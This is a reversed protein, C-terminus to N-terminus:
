EGSRVLPGRWPRAEERHLARATITPGLEGQEDVFFAVDEPIIVGRRAIEVAAEITRVQGGPNPRWSVAPFRGSITADLEGRNGPAVAEM